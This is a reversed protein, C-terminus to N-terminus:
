ENIKYIKKLYINELNEIESDSVILLDSIKKYSKTLFSIEKLIKLIFDDEILTPSFKFKKLGKPNEEIIKEFDEIEELISEYRLKLHKMKNIERVCLKNISDNSEKNLMKQAKEEYISKEEELTKIKNEFEYIEQLKKIRIEEKEETNNELSYKRRKVKYSYKEIEEMRTSIIYQYFELDYIYFKLNFIFYKITEKLQKIDTKTLSSVKYRKIIVDIIKEDDLEIKHGNLNQIITGYTKDDYSEGSLYKDMLDDIKSDKTIRTQDPNCGISVYKGKVPVDEIKNFEKKLRNKEKTNKELCATKYDIIVRIKKLKSQAIIGNM